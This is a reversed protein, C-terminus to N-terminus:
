TRRGGQASLWASAIALDEPWTVKINAASGMVLRPRAGALEMARAEDTPTGGADLMRRMADLLADLRFLQPTQAAWLGDRDVTGDVAGSDDQRKLTDRVPLALIAGDPAELGEDVLREICERGPCPRAADHVMVWEADHNADIHALGNLVSAARTAGGAVRDVPADAAHDLRDFWRDDPALAVTVGSVVAPAALAELAWALLPRGAVELYQKPLTGGLREGTGAAPILAHINAPHSGTM